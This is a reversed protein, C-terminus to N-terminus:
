PSELPRCDFDVFPWTIAQLAIGRVAIHRPFEEGPFSPKYSQIVNRESQWFGNTSISNLQSQHLDALWMAEEWTPLVENTYNEAYAINYQLDAEIDVLAMTFNERVYDDISPKIDNVLLGFRNSINRLDEATAQELAGREAVEYIQWVRAAQSEHSPIKCVGAVWDYRELELSLIATEEITQAITTFSNRLNGENFSQGRNAQYALYQRRAGEMYDGHTSYQIQFSAQFEADAHSGPRPMNRILGLLRGMEATAQGNLKTFNEHETGNEIARAALGHMSERLSINCAERILRFAATSRNVIRAHVSEETTESACRKVLSALSTAFSFLHDLETTPEVPTAPTLPTTTDLGLGTPLVDPEQLCGALLSSLCVSLVWSYRTM